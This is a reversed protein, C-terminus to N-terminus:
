GRPVCGMATNRWRDLSLGSKATLNNNDDCRRGRDRIREDEVDFPVWLLDDVQKDNDYTTEGYAAYSGM